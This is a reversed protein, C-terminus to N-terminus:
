EFSKGRDEGIKVYKRSYILNIALSIGKRTLICRKDKVVILRDKELKKIAKYITSKDYYDQLCEIIEQLYLEGHASFLILLIENKCGMKELVIPKEEINEILPYIANLSLVFHRFLNNSIDFYCLQRIFEALIWNCVHIILIADMQSPEIPNIHVANRKNRLIYIANYAVRVIVKWPENNSFNLIKNYLKTLNKIKDLKEGTMIFWIIRFTDEVFRGGYMLTRKFDEVEYSYLANYYNELLSVVLERDIKKALLSIIDEKRLLSKLLRSDESTRKM